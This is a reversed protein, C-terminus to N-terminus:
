RAILVQTIGQSQSGSEMRARVQILYRGNPAALGADSLGTWAFTNLGATCDRGPTLMRVLRGAINLVRVEVTADASLSFTVQAGGRTPVATLASVLGSARSPAEALSLTGASFVQATAAFGGTLQYSGGASRVAPSATISGVLTMGGGSGAGGGGAVQGATIRQAAQATAVIAVALVVPLVLAWATAWRRM